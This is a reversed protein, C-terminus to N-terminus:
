KGIISAHTMYVQKVLGQVEYIRTKVLKLATFSAARITVPAPSGILNIKQQQLSQQLQPNNYNLISVKTTSM